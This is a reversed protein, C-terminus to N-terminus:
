LNRRISELEIILQTFDEDNHIKNNFLLRKIHDAPKDLMEALHAVKGLEDSNEWAPHLQAIRKNLALRTSDILTQKNKKKWFYQGSAEIHEMLRRREIAEKPILPGFRHLSQYLWFLLLTALSLMVAWGHKWMLILLNPMEDNHFLWVAAPQKHHSHILHWLIEANDTERLLQNEVISLDAILTVMGKGVARQLMFIEDNILTRSENTEKSNISYFHPQISLTLKKSANSLAIPFTRLDRIELPSFIDIDEYVDDEHIMDESEDTNGKEKQKEKYAKDEESDIYVSESSTIELVRQLPDSSDQLFQCNEDGEPCRGDLAEYEDNDDMEARLEEFYGLLEWDVHTGTILHGGDRIWQLLREIRELSLTSRSTDLIIVTDTEPYHQGISQLDNKNYAPIGMQKLFLRAAFLPNERAEGKLPSYKTVEKYEHTDFFQYVGYSFLAILLFVFAIIPKNM